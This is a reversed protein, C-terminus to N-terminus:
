KVNMVVAFLSYANKCAVLFSNMNIRVLWAMVYLPKNAQEAFIRLNKKFRVDQDMWNSSFLAYTLHQFEFEMISGYYCAPLIEVAMSVFYFLYYILTFPDRAFLLMFVIVVCMNISTFLIQVFMYQSVVEELKQRYRFSSVM